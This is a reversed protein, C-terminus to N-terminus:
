SLLVIYKNKFKLLYCFTVFNWYVNLIYTEFTDFYAKDRNKEIKHLHVSFIM